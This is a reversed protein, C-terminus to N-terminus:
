STRKNDGYGLNSKLHLRSSGRLFHGRRTFEKKQTRRQLPGEQSQSSLAQHEEEQMRKGQAHLKGLKTYARKAEDEQSIKQKKKKPGM